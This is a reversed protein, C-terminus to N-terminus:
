PIGRKSRGLLPRFGGCGGGCGGASAGTGESLCESLCQSRGRRPGRIISGRRNQREQKGSPNGSPNPPGAPSRREREGRPDTLRPPIAPEQRRLVGRTRGQSPLSALAWTTRLRRSCPRERTPLSRSPRRAPPRLDDEPSLGLPDQSAVFPRRLLRPKGDAAM